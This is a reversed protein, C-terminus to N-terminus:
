VPLPGNDEALNALEQGSESSYIEIYILSYRRRKNNYSAGQKWESSHVRKRSLRQVKRNRPKAASQGIKIM